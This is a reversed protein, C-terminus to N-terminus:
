LNNNRQIIDVLKEAKQEDFYNDNFLNIVKNFLNWSVRFEEKNESLPKYHSSVFLNNEFIQKILTEKDNVLVNFRWNNFQPQLSIRSLKNSYIQNILSKHKEIIELNCHIDSLYREVTINFDNVILETSANIQIVQRECDFNNDEGSIGVGGGYELEVYKAYGTSYLTLDANTMLSIVPKSLCKDEVVFGNWKKKLEFINDSFNYDIGYTHNIIVGKVDNKQGIVVKTANFDLCLNEENIDVYFPYFGAKIITEVVIQCINVPVIILGKDNKNNLFRYLIASARNDTIIKNKGPQYEM